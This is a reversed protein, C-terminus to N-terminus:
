PAKTEGTKNADVLRLTTGGCPDPDDEVVVAKKYADIKHESKIKVIGGVALLIMVVEEIHQRRATDLKQRLNNVEVEVEALDRCYISCYGDIRFEPDGCRACKGM